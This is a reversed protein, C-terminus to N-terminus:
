DAAGSPKEVNYFAQVQTNIPPGGYKWLKGIGGGLPVTWTDDKSNECNATILPTAALYFNPLNYNFIPQWTFLNTDNNGDGGIDCLNSFLSGGHFRRAHRHSCGGNGRVRAAM